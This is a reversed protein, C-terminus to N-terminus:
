WTSQGVVRLTMIKASRVPMTREPLSQLKDADDFIGRPARKAKLLNEKFEQFKAAFGEESVSQTKAAEKRAFSEIIYDLKQVFARQVAEYACDKAIKVTKRVPATKGKARKLPIPVQIAADNDLQRRRKRAM